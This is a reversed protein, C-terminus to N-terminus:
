DGPAPAPASPEAAPMSRLWATRRGSFVYIALAASLGALGNIAVAPHYEGVADFIVGDLFAGIGFGLNMATFMTGFILGLHRRGYIDAAIAATLPTTASWSVGLVVAYLYILPGTEFAYLLLFAVGRLAYTFALVPARDTRDALIGLAITGIVSFIATVSLATTAVSTHMGMDDAYALFHTQAFAMTFGCVLFGYALLWFGSSRLAHGLTAAQGDALAIRRAPATARAGAGGPHAGRRQNGDPTEGIEAPDEKILWAGLPVMLVLLVALARYTTQWDTATLILVALPLIVLQGVPTGAMAISLATGRRREFWRNVLASANVPSAATFAIGGLLGYVVYFQWLENAFSLPVLTLAILTTGGVMVRKPGIRDTLWGGFPQIVSLVIMNISVAASITSRDWGFEESLPKLVVGFLSRAGNTAMLMTTITGVVVWGYFLPRGRLV